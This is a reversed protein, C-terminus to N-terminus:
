PLYVPSISSILMWSTMWQSCLELNLSTQRQPSSHFLPPLSNKRVRKCNGGRNRVRPKELEFIHWRQVFPAKFSLINEFSQISTRYFFPYQIPIMTFREFSLEFAASSDPEFCRSRSWCADYYRACIKGRLLDRTCSLNAFLDKEANLAKVDMSHSDKISTIIEYAIM